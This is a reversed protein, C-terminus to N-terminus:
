FSDQYILSDHSVVLFDIKGNEDPRFLPLLEKEALNEHRCLEELNLDSIVQLLMKFDSVLKVSSLEEKKIWHMDGEESSILEGEYEDM